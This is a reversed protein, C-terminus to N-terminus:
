SVSLQHCDIPKEAACGLTSSILVRMSRWSHAVFQVARPDSDTKPTFSTMEARVMAPERQPSAKHGLSDTRTFSTPIGMLWGEGRTTTSDHKCCTAKKAVGSATRARAMPPKQSRQRQWGMTGRIEGVWLLKAEGCNPCRYTTDGLQRSLLEELDVVNGEPETTPSDHKDYTAKHHRWAGKTGPGHAAKPQTASALGRHGPTGRGM